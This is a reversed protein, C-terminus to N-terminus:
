RPCPGAVTHWLLHSQKNVGGTSNTTEIVEVCYLLRSSLIDQWSCVWTVSAEVHGFHCGLGLCGREGRFWIWGDIRFHVLVWPVGVFLELAAESCDEATVRRGSSSSFQSEPGAAKVVRPLSIYMHANVMIAELFRSMDLQIFMSM